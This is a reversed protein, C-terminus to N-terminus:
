ELGSLPPRGSTLAVARHVAEILPRDVEYSALQDVPCWVAKGGEPAALRAGPAAVFRFMLDFHCHRPENGRAPIDHVDVGVVVPAMRDDALIGTEERVERRAADVISDDTPEVHGGPQLWRRLGQHFVLLLRGADRTLVVGSATLHGPSYQLRALPSATDALLSLVLARSTRARTDAEPSFGEVWRRVETLNIV